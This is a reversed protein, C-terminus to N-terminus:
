RQQAASAAPRHTRIAALCTTLWTDMHSAAMHGVTNHITDRSSMIFCAGRGSPQQSPQQSEHPRPPLQSLSNGPRCRSHTRGTDRSPIHAATDPRTRIIARRAVRAIPAAVPMPMRNTVLIAALAVALVVTAVPLRIADALMAAAAIAAAPRAHNCRAARAATTSRTAILVVVEIRSRRNSLRRIRIVRQTTRPIEQQIIRRRNPRISFLDSTPSCLDSVAIAAGDWCVAGRCDSHTFPNM